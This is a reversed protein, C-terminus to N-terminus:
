FTATGDVDSVAVCLVSVDLDKNQNLRLSRLLNGALDVDPEFAYVRGRAAKLAAPLAFLGLNSGVDWVVADPEVWDRIFRQHVRGVLSM